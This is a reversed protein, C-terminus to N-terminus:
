WTRTINKPETNSDLSVFSSRLLISLWFEKGCYILFLSKMVNISLAPHLFETQACALLHVYKNTLYVSRTEPLTPDSIPALFELIISM